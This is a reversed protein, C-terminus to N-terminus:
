GSQNRANDVRDKEEKDDIAQRLWAVSSQHIYKSKIGANKGAVRQLQAILYDVSGEIVLGDLMPRIEKYETKQTKLWDFLKESVFRIVGYVSGIYVVKYVFFCVLVWIAMAPLNAVMDVLVKLEDM